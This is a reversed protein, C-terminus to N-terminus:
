FRPTPPMPACPQAMTKPGLHESSVIAIQVGNSEEDFDTAFEVAGFSMNGGSADALYQKIATEIEKQTLTIKM